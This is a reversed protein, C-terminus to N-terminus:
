NGANRVQIIEPNNKLTDMDISVPIFNKNDAM